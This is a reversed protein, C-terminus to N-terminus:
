NSAAPCELKNLRKMWDRNVRPSFMNKLIFDRELKEVNYFQMDLANWVNEFLVIVSIPFHCKTKQGSKVLNIRDCFFTFAVSHSLISSNRLTKLSM